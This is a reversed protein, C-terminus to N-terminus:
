KTNLEKNLNTIFDDLSVAGVSQMTGQILMQMQKDNFFTTPFGLKDYKGLYWQGKQLIVNMYKHSDLCSNFEKEKLGIGGLSKLLNEKTFNTEINEEGLKWLIEDAEWFKGQDNACYAAETGLLSVSNQFSVLDYRLSVNYKGIETEIFPKITENFYKRSWGCDYSSLVVIKVKGDRKGKIELESSISDSAFKKVEEEKKISNNFFKGYILLAGFFIGVIIVIQWGIRNKLM